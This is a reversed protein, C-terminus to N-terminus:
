GREAAPGLAGVDIGASALSATVYALFQLPESDDEDLSLWATRVRQSKLVRQWEALLCTKGFGAPAHVAALRTRLVGPLRRRLRQRGVVRVTPAPAEFKTRILWM